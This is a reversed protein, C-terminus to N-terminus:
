RKRASPSFLGHELFDLIAKRRAGVRKPTLPDCQWLEALVPAAAFYFVTMAILTVVTQQPDVRRFEGQLIGERITETLRRHLPRFNDQIISRLVPKDTRMVERHFLLPYNPHAVVFDFYGSVYGILRERPSTSGELTAGVQQRLQEFLSELTYRHLEEKSRFYYYLLANNVRAARAIAGTRAGALGQQAFIHEAAAVIRQLTAPNKLESLGRANRPPAGHTFRPAHAQAAASNNAM